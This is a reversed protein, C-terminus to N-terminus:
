FIVQFQKAIGALAKPNVIWGAVMECQRPDMEKARRAAVATIHNAEVKYQMEFNKFGAETVIVPMVAQGSEVIAKAMAEVTETDFDDNDIILANVSIKGFEM